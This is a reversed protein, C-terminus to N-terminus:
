LKYDIWKSSLLCKTHQGKAILRGNTRIEASSFAINKGSKHCVAEVDITKNGGSIPSIFSISLDTSVSNRDDFLAIAITTIQDILTAIAGGHLSGLVNLMQPGLPIEVLITGTKERIECSKIKMDKILNKGFYEKVIGVRNIAALYGEARKM